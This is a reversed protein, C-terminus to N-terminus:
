VVIMCNVIKKSFITIQIYNKKHSLIALTLTISMGSLFIHQTLNINNQELRLWINCM